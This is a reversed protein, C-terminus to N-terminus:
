HKLKSNTLIANELIQFYARVLLNYSDEDLGEIYIRKELLTTKEMFASFLSQVKNINEFTFYDLEETPTSMIEAVDSHDFLLHVGQASQALLYELQELQKPEINVLKSTQM